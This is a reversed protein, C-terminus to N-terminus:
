YSTEKVDIIRLLEVEVIFRRRPQIGLSDRMLYVREGDDVVKGLLILPLCIVERYFGDGVGHDIELQLM